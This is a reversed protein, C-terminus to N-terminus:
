VRQSQHRGMLPRLEEIQQRLQIFEAGDIKSKQLERLLKEYTDEIAMRCKNWHSKMESIAHDANTLAESFQDSVTKLRMSLTELIREIESLIAANPLAELAKDSVFAADIPLCEMLTNQIVRYQELREELSFFLQEERILPSKEKLRGELGAEQFRKQTEELGPLAEIREQLQKMERCVDVTRRRSRELELRIKSKRGSLLPDNEVFRKLLLTLREPSKTLESIEHQGFVEVDAMVDRPSLPLVKSTEDKVIPPNPVTREIIYRRESPKHSQVLMSIKTGAQLVYQIINDHAKRAEDGLPDLGFVYCISEIVTSKGTGRGGILVNLNENFHIATDRLFGGDWTMALLETHSEPPPDSHLRIRSEPDLFAQRLGEISVKSMKVYCSLAEKDLDKPDNVDSANLIAPIRDRRYQIDKNELISRINEPVNSVPGPLTCLCAPEAIDLCQNEITRIAEEAVWRQLGCPCRHLSLELGKLM